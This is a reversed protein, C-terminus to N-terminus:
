QKKMGNAAWITYGISVVACACISIKTEVEVTSMLNVIAVFSSLAAAVSFNVVQGVTFEEDKMYHYLNAGAAIGAANALIRSIRITLPGLAYLNDSIWMLLSIFLGGAFFFVWFLIIGIASRVGPKQFFGENEMKFKEKENMLNM